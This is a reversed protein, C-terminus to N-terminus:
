PMFRFEASTLLGWVLEQLAAPRSDPRSTLYKQVALREEVEPYRSFLTLYLNTALQEDDTMAQLTHLLTGETPQLWTQVEATNMMFLAQDAVAFFTDQPAGAAGGFLKAFREELESLFNDAQPPTSTVLGLGYFTATALQEPSLSRVRGIAYERTWSDKLGEADVDFQRNLEEIDAAAANESPHRIRDRLEVFGLRRQALRRQQRLDERQDVIIQVQFAVSRCGGRAETVFEALSLRRSGLDALRRRQRDSQEKISELLNQQETLAADQAKLAAEAETARHAIFSQAVTLDKEDPLQKAAKDAERSATQLSTTLDLHSKHKAQLELLQKEQKSREEGLTRFIQQQANLEKQLTEVDARTQTLTKQAKKLEASFTQEDVILREIRTELDLIAARITGIDFAPGEWTASAPPVLSRQYTDSMAIQKLFVRLDYSKTVFEDTLLHLLDASIPPNDGHNMDVPHVVGMGMMSAWIRNALNRNFAQNRPHTTLVALQQRMSFRPVSRIDKAPPILYADADDAYFPEVDMGMASPLVSVATSKGLEPKFVSTFELHGEAKEGLYMLNGHKEDQFLFSRNIFSLIGYYESQLYDSVLPHDHCQACQLDRGFFIRGVDRTLMKTDVAKTDGVARDLFFKAAPRMPGDTGDSGLIERCLDNLPRNEMLWQSLFRRWSKTDVSLDLRREMIMIDLFKAWHEPYEPRSLLNDILLKRNPSAEKDGFFHLAEKATPPRGILDLYVRKLFSADDSKQAMPGRHYSSVIEDIRVSLPREPAVLSESLSPSASTGTSSITKSTSTEGRLRSVGLGGCLLFIPLVYLLRITRSKEPARSM